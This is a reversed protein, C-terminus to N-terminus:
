GCPDPIVEAGVAWISNGQDTMRTAFVASDLQVKLTMNGDAYTANVVRSVSQFLPLWECRGQRQANVYGLLADAASEVADPNVDM